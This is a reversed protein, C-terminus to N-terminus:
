VPAPGVHSAPLMIHVVAIGMVPPWTEMAIIMESDAPSATRSDIPSAMVTEANNGIVSAVQPNVIPVRNVVITQMTPAVSLSSSKQVVSPAHHPEFHKFVTTMSTHKEPVSTWVRSITPKRHKRAAPPSGGMTGNVAM